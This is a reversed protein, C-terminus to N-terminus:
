LLTQLKNFGREPRAVHDRTIRCIKLETFSTELSWGKSYKTGQPLCGRIRLAKPTCDAQCDFM